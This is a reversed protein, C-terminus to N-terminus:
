ATFRWTYGHHSKQRGVCCDRICRRNGGTAEAAEAMTRFRLGDSREVARNRAQNRRQEAYTAWRCNDPGYGREGDVRDLTKGEPREGKDALFNAFIQWRDCVRIGRGGYYAYGTDRPNQCRSLMGAWVRYTTTMGGHATHGHRQYRARGSM